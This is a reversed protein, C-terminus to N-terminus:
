RESAVPHNVWMQFAEHKFKISSLVVSRVLDSMSGDAALLDREQLVTQIRDLLQQHDADQAHIEKGHAKQQLFYISLVGLLQQRTLRQINSLTKEVAILPRVGGDRLPVLQMAQMSNLLFSLCLFIHKM